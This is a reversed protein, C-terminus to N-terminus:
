ARALTLGTLVPALAAAAPEPRAREFIAFHLHPLPPMGDKDGLIRLGRGAHYPAFLARPPKNMGPVLGPRM